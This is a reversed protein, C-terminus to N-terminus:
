QPPLATNQRRQDMLVLLVRMGAFRKDRTISLVTHPRQAHLPCVLCYRHTPSWSGIFHCYLLINSQSEWLCLIVSESLLSSEHDLWSSEPASLLFPLSHLVDPVRDTVGSCSIM